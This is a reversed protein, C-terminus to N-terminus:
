QSYRGPNEGMRKSWCDRQTEVNGWTWYHIETWRNKIDRNKKKARVNENHTNILKLFVSSHTHTRTNTHTSYAHIWTHTHTHTHTHLEVCPDSSSRVRQGERETFPSSHWLCVSAMKEESVYGWVSLVEAGSFLVNYEYYHYVCVCVCM